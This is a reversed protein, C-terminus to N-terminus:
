HRLCASPAWRGFSREAPKDLMAILHAAAVHLSNECFAAKDYAALTPILTIVMRRVLADRHVRLQLIRNAVENYTERMFQPRARSRPAPRLCPRTSVAGGHTLLTRYILLAGHIAEAQPAKLGAAADQAIKHLHASRPTKERKAGIDLCAALLEAAGERVIVRADRLPVMIKDFVLNVHLHFHAPANRALEKLVLVGAYRAGDQQLLEIAASVEMVMFNDGFTAGGNRAIQGLTKSAALM